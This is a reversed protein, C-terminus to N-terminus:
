KTSSPPTLKFGLQKMMDLTDWYGRQEVVRGEKWELVAIGHLSLPRNTAPLNPTSGTNTGTYDYNLISVDGDIYFEGFSFRLDPFAAFRAACYEKYAALGHLVPEFAQHHVEVDPSYLEDLLSLQNTNRGAEYQVIFREVQKRTVASASMTVSLMIIAAMFGLIFGDTVRM